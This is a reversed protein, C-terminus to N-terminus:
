GHRAEDAGPQHDTGPPSAPATPPAALPIPRHSPRTARAKEDEPHIGDGRAELLALLMRHKTEKESEWDIEGEEGEDEDEDESAEEEGEEEEGEEEGEEMAEEEAEEM